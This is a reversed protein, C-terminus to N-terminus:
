PTVEQLLELFRKVRQEWSNERALELRRTFNQPSDEAAAQLVLEVFDDSGRAIYVTGPPFSQRDLDPLHHIVVPKGLSLYRWLKNPTGGAKYRTARTYVALTVHAALIERQLEEGYLAGRYKVTAGEPLERRLDPDAPGVLILELGPVRSLARLTPLDVRQPTLFGVLLARIKEGNRPRFTLGEPPQPAGPYLLHSNRSFASIKEQLQESLTICLDARHAVSAECARHYANVIANKFRGLGIHDDNCYYVAPHFARMVLRATFDFNVLVPASRGHFFRRWRGLLWRQYLENLLPLRYRVRFDVPWWPQLLTIGPEPESVELRPYGV